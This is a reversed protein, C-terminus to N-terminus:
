DVDEMSIFGIPVGAKRAREIQEMHRIHRDTPSEEKVEVEAPDITKTKKGFIKEWNSEYAEKNEARRYSGKGGHWQSNKENSM